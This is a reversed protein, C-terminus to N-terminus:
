LDTTAYLQNAISGFSQSNQKEIERREKFEIKLYNGM